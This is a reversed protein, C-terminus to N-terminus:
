KTGGIWINARKKSTFLKRIKHLFSIKPNYNLPQPIYIDQGSILLEGNNIIEEAAQDGIWEKIQELAKKMKPSRHRSSHADTGIFHVMKHKLLIEATKRAKEGLEGTISQSNIQVYNGQDILEKLRNPNEMIKTYREPHAIIPKYGLLRVEYLVDETYIPIDGMPFEILIYHGNNLTFVEKNHLIKPLNPSIYVENGPLIKLNMGEKEFTKNLADIAEEIKEKKSALEGEIFHPTAIIQSIGQEVAIEGMQLAEDIDKAGDDINPLIHSHLDVM